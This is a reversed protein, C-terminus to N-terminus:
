QENQGRLRKLDTGFKGMAKLTKKLLPSQSVDGITQRHSLHFSKIVFVKTIPSKFFALYGFKKIAKFEFSFVIIEIDKQNKGDLPKKELFRVETLGRNGIFEILDRGTQLNFYKGADKIVNSWVHIKGPTEACTKVFEDYIEIFPDGCV